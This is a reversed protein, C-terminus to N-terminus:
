PKIINTMPYKAMEPNNKKVTDREIGMDKMLEKTAKATQDKRKSYIAVSETEEDLEAEGVVGKHVVDIYTLVARAESRAEAVAVPYKFVTNIASAEGIAEICRVGEKEKKLVSTIVICGNGNVQFQKKITFEEFAIIRKIGRKAVVILNKATDNWIDKSTLQYKKVLKALEIHTM